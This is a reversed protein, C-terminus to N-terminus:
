SGRPADLATVRRWSRATSRCAPRSGASARGGTPRCSRRWSTSCCRDGPFATLLAVVLTNAPAAIAVAVRGLLLAGALISRGHRPFRRPHSDELGRDTLVFHPGMAVTCLAAFGVGTRLRLPMTYIILANSVVFSGLHLRFLAPPGRDGDTPTARWQLGYLLHVVVSAAALNGAFSGTATEPVGPLRRIRPAALHLLVLVLAMAPAGLVSAATSIEVPGGM